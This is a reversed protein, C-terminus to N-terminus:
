KEAVVEVELLMDPHILRRVEVWTAAPPEGNNYFQGRVESNAALADIDVTYIVEKVIDSVDFGNENLTKAIERYVAQIQQRMDGAHTPKGDQDWSVTGSIYLRSNSKIAHSYKIVKEVPRINYSTGSKAM